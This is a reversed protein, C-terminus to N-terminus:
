AATDLAASLAEYHHAYHEITERAIQAANLPAGDADTQGTDANLRAAPVKKLAEVLARHSRRFEEMIRALTEKRQEKVVRENDAHREEPTSIAIPKGAAMAALAKAYVSNRYALHAFVDRPSWAGPAPAREFDGARFQQILEFMARHEADLQEILDKTSM